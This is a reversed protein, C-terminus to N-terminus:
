DSAESKLQCIFSMPRYQDFIQFKKKNIMIKLSIGYHLLPPLVIIEGDRSMLIVRDRSKFYSIQEVFQRRNVNM